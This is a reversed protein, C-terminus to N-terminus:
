VVLAIAFGDYGKTGVTQVVTAQVRPEGGMMEVVARSARIAADESLSDALGGERVVNDVIILSGRRTLKLAWEFYNPNNVKDADIFVLDFPEGGESEIAPLSDLAKGVRIDVISSLGAREINHRAVAAHKPEFELTVLRGDGPLARALWITSYGGLTGIELVRKAGMARALVHLLMGQSATVDIAPLGGEANAAIAGSLADDSLSLSSDVYSDVATWLDQTM